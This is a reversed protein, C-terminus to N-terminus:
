KIFKGDYLKTGEVVVCDGPNLAAFGNESRKLPDCIVYEQNLFIPYIEKFILSNGKKVYVGSINKDIKRQMGDECIEKNIIKSNLARKDIKLGYYDGLNIKISGKRFKCLDANMYSCSFVAVRTKDNDQGKLEELRCPVWQSLSSTFRINVYDGKKTSKLEEADLYCMVFWKLSKIIRGIENGKPENAQTNTFNVDDIHSSLVESYNIAGEYGDIYSLFYGTDPSTIDGLKKFGSELIKKKKCELNEIKENFKNERGISLQRENIFNVLRERESNSHLYEGDVSLLSVKRIQGNIQSDIVDPGRSLLKGPRVLEKLDSIERNISDIEMKSEIDSSSRYVEAVAGGKSVREGDKIVYTLVGSGNGYMIEEDRVAFAEATLMDSVTAYESIETRISLTQMNYVLYLGCVCFAFIGIVIIVKKFSFIKM